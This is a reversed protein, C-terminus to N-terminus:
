ENDVVFKVNFITVINRYNKVGNYSLKNNKAYETITQLNLFNGALEILEILDSNSLENLQVGKIINTALKEKLDM